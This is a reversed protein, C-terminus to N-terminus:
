FGCFKNSSVNPRKPRMVCDSQCLLLYTIAMYFTEKEVIPIEYYSKVHDVESYVTHSSLNNRFDCIRPIALRGAATTMNHIRYNGCSRWHSRSWICLHSRSASYPVFWIWTGWANPVCCHWVHPYTMTVGNIIPNATIFSSEPCLPKVTM